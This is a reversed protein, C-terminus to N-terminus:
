YPIPDQAPAQVPAAQPAVVTAPTGAVAPPFTAVGPNPASVAVPQAPAAQPAAQAPASAVGVVETNVYPTGDVPNIRDSVKQEVTFWQGVKSKLAAEVSPWPTNEDVGLQRLTIKASTVKGAQIVGNTTIAKYIPWNYEANTLDVAFYSEGKKSVGARVGTLQVIGMWGAPPKVDDEYGSDAQVAAWGQEISM